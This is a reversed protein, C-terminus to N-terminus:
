HRPYEPYRLAYKAVDTYGSQELIHEVSDQIDEVSITGDKVKSQFDSTVRLALLNIIDENFIKQTATFAKSIADSIKQLNFEAVEGDRKLVNIMM